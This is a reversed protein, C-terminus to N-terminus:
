HSIQDYYDALKVIAGEKDDRYRIKNDSLYQKLQKQKDKFLDLVSGKSNVPIYKNGKKIYIVDNNEYITNITLLTVSNQVTRVRKVLVESRGNYLQDYYGAALNKSESTVLNIFHHGLLNVDSVKDARLIFLSDRLRSVMVDTFIDYTVPVDKYWTGGYCIASPTLQWTGQFYASGKYAVPFWHYAAGNYIKSQDGIKSNYFNVVQGAQSSFVITDASASQASTKDALLGFITILCFLKHM